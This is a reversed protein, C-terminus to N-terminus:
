LTEVWKDSFDSRIQAFASCIIVRAESLFHDIQRM